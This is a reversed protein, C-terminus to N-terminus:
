HCIIGAERASELVPSVFPIGLNLGRLILLVGMALTIYPSIKKFANRMGIGALSGFISLLLMAPLTGAGFFGMFLISDAINATSLAGAVAIYVMGCPLLGNLMGLILPSVLSQHKLVYSMALQIKGSTRLAFATNPRKYFFLRYFFYGVMLVGLTISFGQQMGALYFQRGFFGFIAGIVMYTIIRGSHYMLVAIKRYSGASYQGPIAMALPGCMGICHLSSVGGLSLAAIFLPWSM